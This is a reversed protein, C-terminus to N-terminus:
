RRAERELGERELSEHERPRRIMVIVGYVGAALAAVGGTALGWRAGAHEGIFGIVPGGITTSGLFAIAWLAMVRGRMQPDSSLQLTTNGTSSFIISFVGVLVMALVALPLTPMLSALLAAVGFLFSAWVLVRFSTTKRSATALGGVVAGLGLAASLAAYGTANSQFTFEALLPLSVQFEYTLTGIVAMIILVDRLIPTSAVYSFGARIQGKARELRPPPRLQDAHMAFLMLVVAVYSLGNLLYCLALGVSVILVGAISPGIIRALNVMSSYLTVANRLQDEGVMEVVFAQRTPNDVVNVLGFLLAIAYVMWLQVWGTLVFFGLVLALVGFASQTVYLLTRKPFRDAIVGGWPALLLIPLNQLAAVLGLATGSNTLKLVLWAQAISQMFTGSTSITQGIFYLRFNRVQLSSFTRGGFSTLTGAV